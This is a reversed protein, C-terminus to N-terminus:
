AFKTGHVPPFDLPDLGNRGRDVEDLHGGGHEDHREPHDDGHPGKLADRRHRGEYVDHALGGTQGKSRHREDDIEHENQHLAGHVPVPPHRDPDERLKRVGDEVAHAHIQEIVHESGQTRLCQGPLPSQDQRSTQEGAEGYRHLRIGVYRHEGVVTQHQGNVPGRPDGQPLMMTTLTTETTRARASERTRRRPRWPTPSPVTNM